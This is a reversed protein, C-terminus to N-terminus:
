CEALRFRMRKGRSKNPKSLPVAMEQRNVLRRTLLEHAVRIAVRLRVPPLREFLIDNQLAYGGGSTDGFGNSPSRRIIKRVDRDGRCEVGVCCMKENSFVTAQSPSKLDTRAVERGSHLRQSLRDFEEVSKM